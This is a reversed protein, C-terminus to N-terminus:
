CRTPSRGDGQGLLDNSNFPADLYILDFCADSFGRLMDLNDGNHLRNTM